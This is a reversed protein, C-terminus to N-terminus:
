KSKPANLLDEKFLFRKIKKTSTKPFEEDRLHFSKIRKYSALQDNARGVERRITERIKDDTLEYGRDAANLEFYEFDPYVYLVVDERNSGELKRGMAVCEAVFPSRGMVEEIEEPYVNKGAATVIVNKSRGSIRIHGDTGIWGIDGTRFWKGRITDPMEEVGPAATYFLIKSHQPNEPIPHDIFVAENATPNDLYGPMVQPGRFFLEGHGDEDPKYVMAETGWLCPGITEPKTLKFDPHNCNTVPSTETLGYGQALLMGLNEFGKAVNPDLPAAGSVMLRLKSLGAKERLGSFFKRGWTAKLVARGAKVMGLMANFAARKVAKQKKVANHIGALIKEFLLPVGFIVTGDGDRIDAIIERSKLSRTYMVAAGSYLPMLMGSTCEFTHFLPLVSVFTDSTNFAGLNQVQKVNIVVNRHLLRVAKSKGTTGSTFLIALTDEADPKTPPEEADPAPTDPHLIDWSDIDIVRELNPLDDLKEKVDAATSEAAILVKAKSARLIHGYEVETLLHDVPVVVAGSYVIGCYCVGWGPKNPSLLAVRDGKGVGLSRLHANVAAVKRSFEKGNITKIEGDYRGKFMPLDPFKEGRRRAMEAVTTPYENLQPTLDNEPM